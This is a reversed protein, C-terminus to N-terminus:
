PPPWACLRRERIWSMASRSLLSAVLLRLVDNMVISEVPLRIGLVGSPAKTAAVVYRIDM